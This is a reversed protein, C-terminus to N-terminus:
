NVRAKDLQHNDSQEAEASVAAAAVPEQNAPQGVHAHLGSSKKFASVLSRSSHEELLKATLDKLSHMGHTEMDRTRVNVTQEKMEQEGVVLIYNYQALQAERVKKQMKRDTADVDVHLKAKRLQLRVQQAYELSAESIPVVMVQRPSLWFPWKAAYHETLIAFMREVSGLIARHLMVPREHGTETQYQLNFRIPLQFDLQMTACQFKRMLADYVTIDIKPGYFAGDGPNMEWDLGTEDLAGQLAGEAQDWMADDGLKEQPRTSLAMKYHLGFTDYVMKLMQLFRHLEPKIQDPRCFVHADDQQFRRVRTLGQLAGSYENRHLVGFDALRLPLERYSRARSAFMVCHGPCNMPKLGFEQKEIDFSFMNQKYHEAHGSTKWLDFNYINPTVVEEYEYDWYVERIFEVLTNYVRAGNPLFFCSGPSMRDFFFLEQQTGLLRHDRKKAEEMRHQYDKMSEKDPFTIGYVRQLPDKNVDARWFARSLNNVAQTKLYGTNPLHPGHCLDVMPGCRYLSITATQPLGSIIEVKFKNEQFMALAEDRTVVVRQFSQSEKVVQQMRKEIAAKDADTLTRGDELYCDYYFGEEISPGITLDVGFELELAQGLIHSSSHWFTDKGTKDDFTCLELSCDTELPRLLDWTIADDASAAKVKAVVAKKVVSKPLTKAVDMPTTVGAVGQQVAGDPLTVKIPSAAQKAEAVRDVERQYYQEFLEVRKHYYPERKQVYAKHPKAVVSAQKGKSPHSNHSGNSLLSAGNQMNHPHEAGPLAEPTACCDAGM